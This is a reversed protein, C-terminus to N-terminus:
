GQARYPLEKIFAQWKKKFKEDIKGFCEEFDAIDQEASADAGVKRHKLTEVYKPLDKGKQKILYNVIAWSLAYGEDTLMPQGKGPDGVFERLDPLEKKYKERVVRLRRQNIVNFGAGMKGPPPEFQTALGEVFWQPNAKGPSHVRFNFLLQHAVEHQVVSRNQDQQFADIKNLIFQAQRTKEKRDNPDKSNKAEEKLQRAREAHEKIFQAESMDYFISFDFPERWYLGAAEQPVERGVIQKCRRKYEEFNHCFVVPLKEKPYRIKIDLQSAFRHVAGYTKELRSIFEKVVDEETDYLVCFHDTRRVKYKDGLVAKFEDERPGSPFPKLHEKKDSKSEDGNKKSAADGKPKEAARAGSDESQGRAAPVAVFAAVACVSALWCFGRRIM